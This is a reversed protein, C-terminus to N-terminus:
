FTYVKKISEMDINKRKLIDEAQDKLIHKIGFYRSASNAFYFGGYRSLRFIMFNDTMNYKRVRKANIIDLIDKKLSHDPCTSYGPAPRIGIYEKRM